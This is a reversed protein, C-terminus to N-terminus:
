ALEEKRKKEKLRRERILEIWSKAGREGRERKSAWPPPPYEGRERLIKKVNRVTFPSVELRRAIETSRTIGKRLLLKVAAILEESYSM